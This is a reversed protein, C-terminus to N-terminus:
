LKLDPDIRQLQNAADPSYDALWNTVKKITKKEPMTMELNDKQEEERLIFKATVSLVYMTHIRISGLDDTSTINEDYPSSIVFETASM